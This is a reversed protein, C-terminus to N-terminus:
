RYRLRDTQTDIDIYPADYGVSPGEFGPICAELGSAQLSPVVM